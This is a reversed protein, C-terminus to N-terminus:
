AHGGKRWNARVGWWKMVPQDEKNLCLNSWLGVAKQGKQINRGTAEKERKKKRWNGEGERGNKGEKGRKRGSCKKIRQLIPM